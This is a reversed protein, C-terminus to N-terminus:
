RAASLSLGEQAERAGTLTAIVDLASYTRAGKKLYQQINKADDGVTILQKEVSGAATIQGLGIDSLLGNCLCKKNATQEVTGGKKIYQDIPESSCRYGITSDAKKYPERLYGLDCRRVRELYVSEESITNELRAVKFPFGTPSALPDTFIDLKQTLAMDIVQNKIKRDLGSEECLAFATGVQIGAAGVRRADQLGQFSGTSGALWFPVGLEAIVALDVEDRQGYIPEGRENLQIKGRPPANHGGATPYEIILGDAPPSNRKCLTLALVTSSIIGFFKPRKLEAVSEDAKYGMISRPSFKLKFNDESSAGSVTLRYEVDEHQTLKTLIAPVERPIGAGMLVYDVGALMAGYLSPLIPMQIKELLNIGIKGNHGSKALFVEVFNALVLLKERDKPPNATILSLSAYPATPNKGGPIYYKKLVQSVFEQDPFHELCNIIKGDLDGEQLRRVIVADIATGSVVGIQGAAAVANALVWNSVGVGMGAQIIQATSVLYRM